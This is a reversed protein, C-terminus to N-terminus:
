RNKTGPLRRRFQRAMRQIKNGESLQRNLEIAESLQQKLDNIQESLRALQTNMNKERQEGEKTQLNLNAIRKNRESIQELLESVVREYKESLDRDDSKDKTM